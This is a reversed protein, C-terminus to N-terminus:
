TIFGNGGSSLRLFISSSRRPIISVLYDRNRDNHNISHSVTEAGGQALM